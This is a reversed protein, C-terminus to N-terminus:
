ETLCGEEEHIRGGQKGMQSTTERTSSGETDSKFVKTVGMKCERWTDMYTTIRRSEIRQIGYGVKNLWWNRAHLSHLRMKVACRRLQQM